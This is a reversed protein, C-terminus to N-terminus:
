HCAFYHDSPIEQFAINVLTRGEVLLMQSSVTHNIWLLDNVYLALPLISFLARNELSTVIGRLYYTSSM